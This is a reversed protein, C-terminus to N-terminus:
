NVCRLSQTNVGEGIDRSLETDIQRLELQREAPDYAYCVNHVADVRV